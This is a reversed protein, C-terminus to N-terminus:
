PVCAQGYTITITVGAPPVSNPIFDVSNNSADYNWNSTPVLTGDVRVEIPGAPRSTLYLRTRPSCFSGFSVLSQGWQPGCIEERVGNSATVLSSHKGDDAAEVTCTTAGYNAIASWTVLSPRQVHSQIRALAASPNASGELADTVCIGSFGGGDRIGADDILDAAPGICAEEESGIPLSDFASLARSIFSPDNSSSWSEGADNPQLKVGADAAGDAAAFAFRADFCGNGLRTLLPMLNDRTSARKPVFSPSTDVMVLVDVIPLPDFRYTDTNLANADGVGSLAVISEPGGRESIVVAGRDPGYNIPRYQVSFSATGAGPIITGAPISSALTFEPCPATGPCNPGQPPEGAAARMEVADIVVPATCTNYIVVNRLHSNCGNKVNGFDIASPAATLCPGPGLRHVPIDFTTTGAAIVEVFAQFEAPAGAKATLEVRLTAGSELELPLRPTTLELFDAWSVNVDQVLCRGRGVHRVIFSGTSVLTFSQPGEFECPEFSDVRARIETTVEPQLPDNSTFTVTWVKVGGSSPRVSLPVELLTRADLFAPPEWPVCTSGSFTGVCLEDSGDIRPREIRLLSGSTGTNRLTISSTLAEIPQGTVVTVPSFTFTSPASIRPGIGRGSLAVSSVGTNLTGTRPGLATPAFHVTLTITEGRTLTRAGADITFDTGELTFTLEVSKESTNTLQLELDRSDGIAVNGFEMAEDHKVSPERSGCAVLACAMVLSLYRM